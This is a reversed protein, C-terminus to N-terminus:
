FNIQTRLITSTRSTKNAMHLFIVHAISIHFYISIYLSISYKRTNTQRITALIISEFKIFDAPAIETKFAIMSVETVAVSGAVISTGVVQYGSGSGVPLVVGVALPSLTPLQNLQRVVGGVSVTYSLDYVSRGSCLFIFTERLMMMMMMVTMMIVTVMMMVTMKM